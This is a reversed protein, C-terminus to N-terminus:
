QPVFRTSNLWSLVYILLDREHVIVLILWRDKIEKVRRIYVDIKKGSIGAVFQLETDSVSSYHKELTKWVQQSTTNVIYALAELSLM